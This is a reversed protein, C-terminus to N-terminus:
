ESSLPLRALLVTEGKSPWELEVSGGFLQLRHRMSALALSAGKEEDNTRGSVEKVYLRLELTGREVRVDLSALTVEGALLSMVIAEEAIRFMATAASPSLPPEESSYWETIVAGTQLRAMKVRWQLASFLGFNDLISPRLEDVMQRSRDVATQLATQARKLRVPRQRNIEEPSCDGLASLDMLAAVILSAIDDHVTRALATKQSECTAHLYAILAQAEPLSTDESGPM